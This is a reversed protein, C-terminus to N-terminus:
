PAGRLLEAAREATDGPRWGAAHLREIVVAVAEDTACMAEDGGAAYQVERWVAFERAVAERVEFVEALRQLDAATEQGTLGLAIITVQDGILWAPLQLVETWPRRQAWDRWGTANHVVRYWDGIRLSFLTAGGEFTRKEERVLAGSPV